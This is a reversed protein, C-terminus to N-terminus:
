AAADDAEEAQPQVSYLGKTPKRNAKPKNAGFCDGEPTVIDARHEEVWASAQEKMASLKADMAVMRRVFEVPDRDVDGAHASAPCLAAAPCIVCKETAPWVPVESVDSNRYLVYLGAASRIRTELEQERKREFLVPYSLDNTRCNWVRVQVAQVDPYNKFILWAHMGFQFSQAIDEIGWKKWGSKYDIERVVEPSESSCLLDVESTIRLDLDGVQIDHALQGSRSEGGGDFKLINNPHISAVYRAWARVSARGAALAAPQIDPRSSRLTSLATEALEWHPLMPDHMYDTIAAGFADHVANGVIAMLSSDLVRGIEIFRAQAPCTAYREATSRDLVIAPQDDEVLVFSSVSEKTIM